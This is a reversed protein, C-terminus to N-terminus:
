KLYNKLEKLYLDCYQLEHQKIFENAEKKYNIENNNSCEHLLVEIVTDTRFKFVDFNILKPTKM